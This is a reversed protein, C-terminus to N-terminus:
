GPPGDHDSGQGCGLGFSSGNLEKSTGNHERSQVRALLKVGLRGEESKAMVSGFSQYSWRTFHKNVGTQGM